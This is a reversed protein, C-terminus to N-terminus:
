VPIPELFYNNDLFYLWGSHINTVKQTLQSYYPAGCLKAAAASSRTWHLLFNNWHMKEIQHSIVQCRWTKTFTDIATNHHHVSATLKQQQNHCTHISHRLHQLHWWRWRGAAAVAATVAFAAAQTWFTWSWRTRWGRRVEGASVEWEVSVRGGTMVGAEPGAGLWGVLLSEECWRYTSCSTFQDSKIM